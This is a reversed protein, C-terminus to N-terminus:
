PACFNRVEAPWRVRDFGHQALFALAFRELGFGVCATHAVKPNDKLSISLARGFFTHHYNFSGVSITDGRFPLLARLEFKLKCDKQIRAQAAYDDIFFPDTASEISYAMGLEDFLEIFRQVCKMRGALVYESPGVFVIERSAFEWVRELGNFNGSEYRVIRGGATIVHANTTANQLWAYYHYCITPALLCRVDAIDDREMNLSERRWAASQAFRQIARLDERLHSVLTLAHPFSKFYGCKDLVDAGIITPFQHKAAHFEKAVQAIKSEFFEMLAVITPGVGIRGSGFAKVQGEQLLKDYPDGGYPVNRDLRDTLYDHVQAHYRSTLKSAVENIRDGVEGPSHNARARLSFTVHNRSRPDLSFSTMDESVYHLKSLFEKVLDKEIPARLDVNHQM